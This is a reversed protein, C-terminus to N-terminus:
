RSQPATSRPAGLAPSLRCYRVPDGVIGSLRARDPVRLELGQRACAAQVLPLEEDTTTLHADPSLRALLDDLLEASRQEDQQLEGRGTALEGTRQYLADHQAPFCEPDTLVSVIWGHDCSAQPLDSLSLTEIRPLEVGMRQGVASTARRLEDLEPNPLNIARVRRGLVLVECLLLPLEFLAAGLYLSCGDPAHGLREGLEAAFLLACDRQAALQEPAFFDPAEGECYLAALRPWDLEADLEVPARAFLEPGTSASPLSM